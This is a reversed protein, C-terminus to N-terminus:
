LLALCGASLLVMAAVANRDGRVSVAASKKTKTPTAASATASSHGPNNSEDDALPTIALGTIVTGSANEM